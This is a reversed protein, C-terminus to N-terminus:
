LLRGMAVAMDAMRHSFGWENDYWAMVRVFNGDMVNTQQAAFNASHQDHNYDISVMEEEDYNLIYKLKGFAATAMAKNIEEKSTSRTPLFKLDIVSVNPTPVRIASGDLKGELEPMVLGVAKAAGTTTPIMSMAASRARYMDKHMRDLTPQDGTYAHVTTMFGKEIGVCENLVKAVPALCNTTCSANSVVLDDETLKDENVGYVCTKDANKAPASILVRKAGRELHAASAERSNFAGTCELVIDVGEWDLEEIKRSSSVRIKGQGANIWDDGFTVDRSYRGHVSDVKLLHANSKIPGSANLAVVDIDKRGSEIIARLTCRGIRGFGNIAVRVTM